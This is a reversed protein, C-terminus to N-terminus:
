EARRNLGALDGPFQWSPGAKEGAMVAIIIGGSMSLLSLAPGPTLMIRGISYGMQYGAVGAPIAFLLMVVLGSVPSHTRAFIWPGCLSIALGAMFAGVIAPGLSIGHGLLWFGCGVAVGLPLAHLTLAMLLWLVYFAAALGAVLLLTM